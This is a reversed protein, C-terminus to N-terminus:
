RRLLFDAFNGVADRNYGDISLKVIKENGFTKSLEKRNFDTLSVRETQYEIFDPSESDYETVQDYLRQEGGIWAINKIGSNDDCFNLTNLQYCIHYINVGTFVICQMPVPTKLDAGMQEGQSLAYTM